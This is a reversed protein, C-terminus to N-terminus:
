SIERFSPTAIAVMVALVVLVIMAEILTFGGQGVRLRSQRCPKM